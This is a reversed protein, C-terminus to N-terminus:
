ATTTANDFAETLNGEFNTDEGAPSLLQLQAGEEVKRLHRQRTANNADKYPCLRSGRPHGHHKTGEAKNCDSCTQMKHHSSHDGTVSSTVHLWLPVAEAKILQM